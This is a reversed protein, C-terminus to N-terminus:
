PNEHLLNRLFQAINSIARKGIDLEHDKNIFMHITPFDQVIVPVGAAKLKEGYAIGEDHLPDFEALVILASPLATADEAVLPSAYPELGNETKDLYLNWFWELQKKTLFYGEAYKQCSLTDFGHKVAPCVLVQAQFIPEKKEKAKLTVAAALNAGASIGGIALKSPNGDWEQIHATVWDVAICCDNLGAPYKHEPALRYDISVVIIQAQDAISRCFPDHSDLSSLVWGGGHITVFVPFPGKGKPIYIRLPIQTQPGPIKINFISALQIPSTVVSQKVYQRADEISMTEIPPANNSNVKDLFLRTQEDM